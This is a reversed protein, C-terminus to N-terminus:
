RIIPPLRQAWPQAKELQGALSFLVSEGGYQGAFHMGVPLGEASWCLPVSMAPQGSVNFLPTVPMFEFVNEAATDLAGLRYLLGSANLRGLV